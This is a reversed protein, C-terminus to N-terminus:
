VSARATHRRAAAFVGVLGVGMLLIAEPEPVPSVDKVLFVGLNPHGELKSVMETRRRLFDGLNGSTPVSSQLSALVTQWESRPEGVPEGLWAIAKLIEERTIVPGEMAGGGVDIWGEGPFGPPAPVPEGGTIQTDRTWLLTDARLRDDASPEGALVGGLVTTPGGLYASLEASAAWGGMWQIFDYQPRAHQMLVDLETATAFRFGQLTWDSMEIVDIVSMGRTVSVDLWALGSDSDVTLLGDGATRLDAVSLAASAVSAALSAALGVLSLKLKNKM